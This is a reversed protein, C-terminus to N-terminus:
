TSNCLNRIHFYYTTGPTLGTPKYTTGSIPTGPGTPATPSTNLVYQYGVSPTAATWAINATTPGVGSATVNTPSACPSLITVTYDHTEGFSYSICPDLTNAATIWVMRVRMRHNGTAAAAPIAVTFPSL